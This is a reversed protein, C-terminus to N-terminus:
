GGGGQIRGQAMNTQELDNYRMIESRFPTEKAIYTSYQFSIKLINIGLFPLYITQNCNLERFVNCM